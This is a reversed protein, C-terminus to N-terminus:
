NVATKNKIEALVKKVCESVIEKVESENLEIDTRTTDTKNIPVDWGFGNLYKVYAIFDENHPNRPFKKLVTYIYMHIMEHLLTEGISKASRNWAGTMVITGPSNVRFVKGLIQSLNYYYGGFAESGGVYCPKQVKFRPTQLANKFYKRNFDAFCGSLWQETPIM